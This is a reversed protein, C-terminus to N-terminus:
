WVEIAVEGRAIAEGIVAPEYGADTLRALAEGARAPAVGFLLGGSTQPDCLLMKREYAVGRAVRTAAEVYDLNRFMGGPLCGEVALVLAGPLLPVRAAEIALTVGSAEAMQMAHGLLGFGTVDTGGRVGLAEMVAAGARSLQEMSAYARAVDAERALGVRRGAVLTGTGLPKTLVLADGPALGANTVIRDPHVVGTVSLGYKPPWDDITHGGVVLGGAEHVKEAGGALIEGLVEIPIRSASFGVINMATLVRGGMAYVDSLANAAAIRGFQRPDSCVPPFFDLTQILATSADLRYVAADDRTSQDVLLAPDHRRPITALVRALTGPALKASCGGEAVTTLLDFSV